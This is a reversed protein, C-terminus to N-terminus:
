WPTGIATIPNKRAEIFAALNAEMSAKDLQGYVWNLIDAETVNEYAIFDPSSPDPSLSESGYVRASSDSDTAVCEWHATTIGGTAVDHECTVINWNYTTM